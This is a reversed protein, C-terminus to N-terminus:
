EVSLRYFRQSVTSLSNTLTQTTGDGSVTQLVQWVPDNLDDKYQVVYTLGAVTDFSFIFDAGVAGQSLLSVSGVARGTVPNTSSGGSSTFVVANSFVGPTSPTFCITPNTSISQDLTFPTGSLIAFPAEVTASGLLTATGANSVVFLAQAIAGTSILGLDLSAPSVTLQPSPLITTVVIYNTRTLVNSGCRGVASLTVSFTGANTYINVPNVNTSAQGDGFDWTYNAAGSSLNTFTVMLPAVGNTPDGAFDAAPPSAVVNTVNQSCTNTNGCADTAVWTATIVEPYSGNTEVGVLVVTVNTGSCTDSATPPDFSWASGCEVTKNTACVLLPPTTDVVTVLQTCVTSNSCCDTAQWLGECLTQCLSLV